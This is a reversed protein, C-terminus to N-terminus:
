SKFFAAREVEVAYTFEFFKDAPLTTENLARTGIQSDLIAYGVERAKAKGADAHKEGFSDRIGNLFEYFNEKVDSFSKKALAEAKEKAKTDAYQQAGTAAPEDSFEDGWDDAPPEATKPQEVVPEGPLGPGEGAADIHEKHASSEDTVKKSRSRSAPPKASEASKADSLEKLAQGTKEGIKSAVLAELADAIREINKEISM